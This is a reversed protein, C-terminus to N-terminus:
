FAAEVNPASEKVFHLLYIMKIKNQVVLVVPYASFNVIHILLLLNIKNWNQFFYPRRIRLDSFYFINAKGERVMDLDDFVNSWWPVTDEISQTSPPTSPHTHPPPITPQTPPHILWLKVM